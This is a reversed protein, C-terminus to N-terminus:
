NSDVGADSFHGKGYELEINEKRENRECALPCINLDFGINISVALATIEDVVIMDDLVVVVVSFGDVFCKSVSGFIIRGDGFIACCVSSGFVLSICRAEFSTWLRCVKVVTSPVM